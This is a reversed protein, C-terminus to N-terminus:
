NSIATMLARFSRRTPSIAVEMKALYLCAYFPFSGEREERSTPVTRPQDEVSPSLWQALPGANHNAMVGADYM